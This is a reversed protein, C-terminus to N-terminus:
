PTIAFKLAGDAKARFMEYARPTDSLKIRHSFLPSVDLRNYRVMDLMMQMRDRGSPCVTTVIRRHLFSPVVTPMSVAPSATYIGVSSVTGGRRVVRTAAEFTPQTGVAEVAIDVGQNGTLAVIRGVPDEEKANIVVNAGLRKSVELREPITDVGVILGCGRLRAGMTACLGVPGQAFIAVSNGFGAEAREIAGFATSMIDSALVAAEDSVDDPVKVAGVEAHPIVYYEGQCGFLPRGFPGDGTCVGYNGRMCETCRGCTSICASMVRDGPAFSTVGEGVSHVIGVAEHGMLMGEALVVGPFVPALAENPVEDLFHMDSGCITTMSMKVVMQGPGPEPIPIEKMEVKGIATKLCALM